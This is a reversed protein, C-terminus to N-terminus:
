TRQLLLCKIDAIISFLNRIRWAETFRWIHFDRENVYGILRLKFHLDKSAELMLTWDDKESLSSNTVNLLTNFLINFNSVSGIMLLDTAGINETGDSSKGKALDFGCYITDVHFQKNALHCMIEEICNQKFIIDPRTLIVWDNKNCHKIASLASYYKRKGVSINNIKNQDEVIITNISLIKKLQKIYFPTVNKSHQPDTGHWSHTEPTIKTWTHMVIESKKFIRKTHFFFYKRRIHGYLCIKLNM